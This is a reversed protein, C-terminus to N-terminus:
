NTGRARDGNDYVVSGRVIHCCCSNGIYKGHKIATIMFLFERHPVCYLLLCSNSIYKGHGIATIM